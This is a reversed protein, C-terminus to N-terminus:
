KRRVSIPRVSITRVYSATPRFRSIIFLVILVLAILTAIATPSGDQASAVVGVFWPWAFPLLVLMCCAPVAIVVGAVLVLILAYEIMGQGRESDARKKLM